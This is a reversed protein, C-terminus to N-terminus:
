VEKACNTSTRQLFISEVSTGFYQAIRVKVEDRPIREGREYMALASKSIDLKDALSQQSETGRMTRIKAGITAPSM